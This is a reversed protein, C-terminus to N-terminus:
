HNCAQCFLIKFCPLCGAQFRWVEILDLYHLVYWSSLVRQNSLGESVECITGDTPGLTGADMPVQERFGSICLSALSIRKGLRRVARRIWALRGATHCDFHEGKVPLPDSVGSIAVDCHGGTSTAKTAKAEVTRSCAQPLM